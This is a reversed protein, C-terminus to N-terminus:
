KAQPAMNGFRFYWFESGFFDMQMLIGATMKEVVKNKNLSVFQVFILQQSHILTVVRKKEDKQVHRSHM